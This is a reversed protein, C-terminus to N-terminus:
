ILRRTDLICQGCHYSGPTTSAVAQASSIQMNGGAAIVSATTSSMWDAFKMSLNPENTPVTINFIYSWGDAYTDDATASTQVPTISTVALAGPGGTVTGGISGTSTATTSGTTFQLVAGPTWTGGINAWAAYYYTTNPTITPLGIASSAAASYATNAAVPGLDATSYVGSPQVPAATSFTSTSVWFSSGMAATSGLLGNLIADSATISTAPTTTVSSSVPATTSGTTFQLVAGPTWNGGVDTWAAFYYTTNPTVAPLGAVSSLQASFATNAAVGPLTEAYVGPPVTTSSVSFTSTAVWFGTNDAAVDGNVGNLTADSSTVTTAPATISSQMPVGAIDGGNGGSSADANTWTGNSPTVYTFSYTSAGANQGAANFVQTQWNNFQSGSSSNDAALTLSSSSTTTATGPPLVWTEGGTFTGTVGSALPASTQPSDPGTTTFTGNTTNGNACFTGSGDTALWVNVNETFTDNAWNGGNTGSDPETIPQTLTLFPLDRSRRM